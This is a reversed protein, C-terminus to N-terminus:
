GHSRVLRGPTGPQRLSQPFSCGCGKATQQPQLTAFAFTGSPATSLARSCQHAAAVKARHGPCPPVISAARRLKHLVRPFVSSLIQLPIHNDNIDLKIVIYSDYKEGQSLSLLGHCTSDMQGECSPWQTRNSSIWKM